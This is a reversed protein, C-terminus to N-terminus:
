VPSPGGFKETPKLMSLISKLPIPIDAIINSKDWTSITFPECDDINPDFERAPEIFKFDEDGVGNQDALINEPWPFSLFWRKPM